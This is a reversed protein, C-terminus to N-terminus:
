WSLFNSLVAKLYANTETNKISRSSASLKELVLLSPFIMGSLALSCPFALVLDMRQCSITFSYKM